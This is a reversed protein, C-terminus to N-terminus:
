ALLYVLAAVRRISRSGAAHVLLLEALAVDAGFEDRWSETLVVDEVVFGVDREGHDLRLVVM